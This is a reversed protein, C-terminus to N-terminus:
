DLIDYFTKFEYEEQRLYEIIQQLSNYTKEKDAADHMLIVLSNKDQATEKLRNILTEETKLGESDGNLANWDVSVINNQELLVKAESKLDDYVGGVSGGPFRFINSNYIQNGIANRIAQNTKSYEDLVSQTSAYIQSYKVPSIATNSIFVCVTVELM